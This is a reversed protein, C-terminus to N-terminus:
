PLTAVTTADEEKQHAEHEHTSALQPKLIDAMVQGYASIRRMFNLYTKKNKPTEWFQSKNQQISLSDLLRRLIEAEKPVLTSSGDMPDLGQEARLTIYEKIAYDILHNREISLEQNNEYELYDKQQLLLQWTAYSPQTM